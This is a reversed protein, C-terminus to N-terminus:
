NRKKLSPYHTESRKYGDEVGYLLNLNKIVLIVGTCYGKPIAATAAIISAIQYENDVEALLRLDKILDIVMGCKQRGLRGIAMTVQYDLRDDPLVPVSEALAAPRDNEDDHLIPLIPASVTLAARGHNDIIPITPTLAAVIALIRAHYEHAPYVDTGYVYASGTLLSLMIKNLVNTNFKLQYTMIFEM